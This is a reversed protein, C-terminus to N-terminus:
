VLSTTITVMSHVGALPACFSNAGVQVIAAPAVDVIVIVVNEVGSLLEPSSPLDHSRLADNSM